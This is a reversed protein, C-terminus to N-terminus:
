FDLEGKTVGGNSKKPVNRKRRRAGILKQDCKEEFELINQVGKLGNLGSYLCNQSSSKVNVKSSTHRTKINGNQGIVQGRLDDLSDLGEISSGFNDVKYPSHNTSCDSSSSSEDTTTFTSSANTSQNQKTKQLKRPRGRARRVIQETKSKKSSSSSDVSETAAVEEPKQEQECQQQIKRLVDMM